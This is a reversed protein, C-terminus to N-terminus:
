RSNLLNCRMKSVETLSTTPCINAYLRDPTFLICPSHTPFHQTIVFHSTNNKYLQTIEAISQQSIREFSWRSTFVTLNVLIYPLIWVPLYIIQDMTMVAYCIFLLCYIQCDRGVKFYFAYQTSYFQCLVNGSLQLKVGQGMWVRECKRADLNM